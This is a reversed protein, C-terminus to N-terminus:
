AIPDMCDPDSLLEAAVKRHQAAAESKKQCAKM